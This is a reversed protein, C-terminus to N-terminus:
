PSRRDTQMARAMLALLPHLLSLVVFLLGHSALGVCSEALDTRHVRAFLEREHDPDSFPDVALIPSRDLSAHEALAFCEDCVELHAFAWEGEDPDLDGLFLDKMQASSIHETTRSM